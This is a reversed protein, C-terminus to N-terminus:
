TEEEGGKWIYAKQEIENMIYEIDESRWWNIMIPTIVRRVDDLKVWTGTPREANAKGSEYALVQAMDPTVTPANDYIADISDNWGKQYALTIRKITKGNRRGALQIYQPTTFKHKKLEERSILDGQPKEKPKFFECNGYRDCATLSPIDYNTEGNWDMKFHHGCDGERLKCEECETHKM